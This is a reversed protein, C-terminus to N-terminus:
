TARITSPIPLIVTFPHVSGTKPSLEGRPERTRAFLTTVQILVRFFSHWSATRMTISTSSTPQLYIWKLPGERPPSIARRGGSTTGNPYTFHGFIDGKNNIGNVTITSFSGPPLGIGAIKGGHYLFTGNGPTGYAGLIDGNDNIDYADTYEAGPYDIKTFTYGTAWARGAGIFLLAAVAMVAFRKM